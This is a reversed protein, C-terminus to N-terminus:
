PKSISARLLAISRTVGKESLCPRVDSGPGHFIPIDGRELAGVEKSVYRRPILGDRSLAYLFLSHDLGDMLLSRSHQRIWAYQATPRYIYRCKLRSFGDLIKHFRRDRKTKERLFIHMAGFGAVVDEVFDDAFSLQGNLRVSHDGFKRRGLASVEERSKAILGISPLMGTRLISGEEHRTVDRSIRTAPHLLTECDILVPDSGHAIINGAHFDVGRLLHILYLIAGARFYYGEVQKRSRCGRHSVSEMWCHMDSSLIKAIKFPPQFGKENIWRLLKFWQVEHQGSRPKYYWWSRDAFRVRMVTRNGEHPDSLAPAIACILPMKTSTPFRASLFEESDRLFWSTFRLWCNVQVAWRRALVPYSNLLQLAGFGSADEARVEDLGNIIHRASHALRTLLSKALASEAAPSLVSNVSSRSLKSLEHRAYGAVPRAISETIQLGTRQMSDDKSLNQLIGRLTETWKPANRKLAVCNSLSIIESEAIQEDALFRNWGTPDRGGRTLWYRWINLRTQGIAAGQDVEAFRRRERFSLGRLILRNVQATM